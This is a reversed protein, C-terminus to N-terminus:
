ARRVLRLLLLLVVAGITATVITAILVSMGGFHIGLKPLLWGGIFAGLIGVVIFWTAISATFSLGAGLAIPRLYGEETRVFSATLAALLGARDGLDGAVATTGRPESGPRRVLASVAPRM